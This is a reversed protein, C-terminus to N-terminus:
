HKAPLSDTAPDCGDIICKNLVTSGGMSDLLLWM